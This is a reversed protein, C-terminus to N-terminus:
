GMRAMSTPCHIGPPSVSHLASTLMGRRYFIAWLGSDVWRAMADKRWQTELGLRWGRAM